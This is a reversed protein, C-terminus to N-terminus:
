SIARCQAAYANQNLNNQLFSKNEAKEQIYPLMQDPTIDKAVLEGILTQEFAYREESLMKQSETQNGGTTIQKNPYLINHKINAHISFQLSVILTFIVVAALTKQLFFAHQSLGSNADKLKGAVKFHLPEHEAPTIRDVLKFIWKKKLIRNLWKGEDKISQTDEDV